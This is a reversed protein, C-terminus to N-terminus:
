VEREEDEMVVEGREMKMRWNEPWQSV